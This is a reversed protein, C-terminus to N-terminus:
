EIMVQFVQVDGATDETHVLYRGAAWGVTSIVTKYAYTYSQHVTAGQQNIITIDLYTATPQLVQIDAFGQIVTRPGGDIEETQPKQPPTPTGKHAWTNAGTLILVALLCVVHRIIHSKM